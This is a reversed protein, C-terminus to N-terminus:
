LRRLTIRGNVTTMEIEPGGGGITGRASRPGWRGQITLPFETNLGGNVSSMRVDASANAPIGVDIGGNVTTFKLGGEAVGGTNAHISGNVTTAHVRAGSTGIEIGGNVTTARVDRRAGHVSIDGNVTTPAVHAQQPLRVQFRVQTDNRQNRGSRRSSMGRETCTSEPNWLACITVNGDHEVVEIRVQSPDGRNWRKEATVHVRGDTSPEIAVPGNISAIRVWKDAGVNGSWSWSNDSRQAGAALPLAILAATLIGRRM